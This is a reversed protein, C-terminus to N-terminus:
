GAFPVRLAEPPGAPALHNGQGLLCGFDELLRQQEASQVGQAVTALEFARGAGVLAAVTATHAWDSGLGAVLHRDIKVYDVPMRKLASVSASGAGWDNIGLRVGTDRLAVLGKLTSGAAEMLAQEPLDLSLSTPDLGALSLAAQVTAVLDPRAMQRAGLSLALGVSWGRRHWGAAERCAQELAWRGLPIILGSDEAVDIFQHALLIGREPHDYRLLAEVGVVAGGALEVMPQYDIGLQGAALAERLGGELRLREGARVRLDDDYVQHRAKGGEKARYMAVDADRLLADPSHTGPGALVVGVSATVTAEHDGLVCPQSVAAEVRAAIVRAETEDKLGECVIVFEDGGLRCVTDSPRVAVLLRQAVLALVRDGADHGLGDNVLKFNDLDVFMVTLTGPERESRALAQRLRDLMLARNPLGTLSDHLAQRTLQEEAEKRASIDEIQGIFYALEGAPGTVASVNLVVWVPHGDAHLYRKELRYRALEGALASQLYHRSLELDDPHTLDIVSMALLTDRAYGLMECYARNAQLTAGDVDVLVMGIPADDFATQFRENAQRLAAEASRRETIDRVLANFRVSPAHHAPWISLEMPIEHGDRHLAELELRNGFVAGEGTALFHALGAEHAERFREPIITESLRRGVAEAHSWGFTREAATNWDCIIGSADMGVFADGATEVVLRMREESAMLAAAARTREAVRGLQTGIQEMVDLFAPDPETPESHFFELVGVVEAGVLVPFAFASVLGAEGAMAARAFDDDAGLDAIWAPRGSALVRGPLGSGIGLRLAETARRFADFRDPDDLHWVSSSVLQMGDSAQAYFHGISWHCYACVADLSAQMAQDVTTAENAAVATAKLLRLSRDVGTVDDVESMYTCNQM